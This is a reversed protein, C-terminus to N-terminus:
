LMTSIFTGDEKRTAKSAPILLGNLALLVHSKKKDLIWVLDWMILSLEAGNKSKKYTFEDKNKKIIQSLAGCM